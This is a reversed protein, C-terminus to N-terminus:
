LGGVIEYELGDDLLVTKAKNEDERLGSVTEEEVDISFSSIKAQEEVVADRLEILSQDLASLSKELESSVSARTQKAFSYLVGFAVGFTVVIIALLFSFDM